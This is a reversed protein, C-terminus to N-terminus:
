STFIPILNWTWNQTLGGPSTTKLTGKLDQDTGIKATQQGNMNTMWWQGSGIYPGEASATPCTITEPISPSGTFAGNGVYPSGAHDIRHKHLAAAILQPGTPRTDAAATPHITLPKSRLQDRKGLHWVARIVQTKTGTM